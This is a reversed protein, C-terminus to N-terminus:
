KRDWKLFSSSYYYFYGRRNLILGGRLLIWFYLSVSDPYFNFLDNYSIKWSKSLLMVFSRCLYSEGVVYYRTGCALLRFPFFFFFFFLLFFSDLPFLLSSEKQFFGRASSALTKIPAFFANPAGKRVTATPGTFPICKWAITIVAKNSPTIPM